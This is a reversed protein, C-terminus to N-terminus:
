ATSDPSIPTAPKKPAISCCANSACPKRIAVWRLVIQREDLSIRYSLVSEGEQQSLTRTEARILKRGAPTERAQELAVQERAYRLRLAIM